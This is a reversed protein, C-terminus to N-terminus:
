KLLLIHKKERLFISDHTYKYMKCTLIEIHTPIVKFFFPKQFLNVHEILM